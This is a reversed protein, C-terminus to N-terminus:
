VDKEDITSGEEGIRYRYPTFVGGEDSFVRETRTDDASVYFTQATRELPIEMIVESKLGVDHIVHLRTHKANGRVTMTGAAADYSIATSVDVLAHQITRTDVIDGPKMENSDLLCKVTRRSSNAARFYGAIDDAAMWGEPWIYSIELSQNIVESWDKCLLDPDLEVTPERCADSEMYNAITWPIYNSTQATELFDASPHSSLYGLYVDGCFITPHSEYYGASFPRWNQPAGGVQEKFDRYNVSLAGQANSLERQALILMGGGAIASMQAKYGSSRSPELTAGYRLLPAGDTRLDVFDTWGINKLTVSTRGFHREKRVYVYVQKCEKREVAQSMEVYAYARYKTQIATSYNRIVFDKSAVYSVDLCNHGVSISRQFITADDFISNLPLVEDWSAARQSIEIGDQGLRSVKDREARSFDGFNAIASEQTDLQETALPTDEAREYHSRLSNIAEYRIKFVCSDAYGYESNRDHYSIWRADYAVNPLFEGWVHRLSGDGSLMLDCVRDFWTKSQDPDFWSDIYEYMASFGTIENGGISYEVTGYWYKGMNEITVDSSNMEAYDRSLYARKESELCLDTIDAYGSQSDDIVDLTSPAPTIDLSENSHGFLWIPVNSAIVSGDEKRLTVRATIIFNGEPFGEPTRKIWHASLVGQAVELDPLTQWESMTASADDYLTLSEPTPSIYHRIAVRRFSTRGAFGIAGVPVWELSVSSEGHSSVRIRLVNGGGLPARITAALRVTRDIDKFELKRVSYIPFQTVLKLNETQRLTASSPDRFCIMEDTVVSNQDLLSSGMNVLRSACRDSSNSRRVYNVGSPIREPIVPDERMDVWEIKRGRVKPICGMQSMMSTLAQRLTPQSFACDKLSETFKGKIAAEDWTLAYDHKWGGGSLIKAKPVYLRLTEVIAEGVTKQSEYITRGGATVAAHLIQRNPLQVKELLKTESMMEITYEYEHTRLNIENEIFADVLFPRSYSGDESYILCWDYPKIGSLRDEASVHTLIATGSDLQETMTETIVSGVAIQYEKGYNSATRFFLRM